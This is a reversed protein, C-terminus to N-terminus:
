RPQSPGPHNRKWADYVLLIGSLMLAGDLLGFFFSWVLGMGPKPTIVGLLRMVQVPLTSASMISIGRLVDRNHRSLPVPAIMVGGDEAM